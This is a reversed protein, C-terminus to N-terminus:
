SRAMLQRFRAARGKAPAWECALGTAYGALTLEVWDGPLQGCRFRNASLMRAAGWAAASTSEYDTGGITEWTARPLTTSAHLQWPSKALGRDCEYPRCEDAHVRKSLRTEENAVLLLLVALEKRSGPWVRRCGAPEGTCTARASASDISKAITTLRELREAQPEDVDDKYVPLTLALKLLLAWM